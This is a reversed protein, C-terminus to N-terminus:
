RNKGDFLAILLAMQSRQSLSISAAMRAAACPGPLAAARSSAAMKAQWPPLYLMSVSSFRTNSMTSAAMASCQSAISACMAALSAMRAPMMESPMAAPSNTGPSGSASALVTIDAHQLKNWGVSTACHAWSGSCGTIARRRTHSAIAASVLALRLGIGHPQREGCREGQRGRQERGAAVALTLFGGGRRRAHHQDRRHVGRRIRKLAAQGAGDARPNFAVEPEPDAALHNPPQDIGARM